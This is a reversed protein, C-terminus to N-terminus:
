FLPGASTGPLAPETLKKQRSAILHIMAFALGCLIIKVIELAMLLLSIIQLKFTINSLDDGAHTKSYLMLVQGLVAHLLWFAWWFGVLISTRETQWQAPNRSAKWIEQMAQCPYVLNAFPIFYSGVALAPTFKLHAGFGRCNLNARYIWMLFPVANLLFIGTSAYAFVQVWRAELALSKFDQLFTEVLMAAGLLFHPIASLLSIVLLVKVVTTLSEPNKVFQYRPAAALDLPPSGATAGPLEKLPRWETMGEKRYLTESSLLGQRLM